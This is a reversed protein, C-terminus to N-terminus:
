VELVVANGEFAFIATGFFYVLGSPDWTKINKDYAPTAINGYASYLVLLLGSILSFMAAMSIYSLTEMSECLYVLTLIMVCLVFLFNKNHSWVGETSHHLVWDM